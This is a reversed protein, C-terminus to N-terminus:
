KTEGLPKDRLAAMREAQSPRLYLPRAEDGTVPLYSAAVGVDLADPYACEGCLSQVDGFFSTGAPLSQVIEELSATDPMHVCVGDRYVAYYANDNGADVLTCLTGSFAGRKTKLADLSSVSIVPKKLAFAFANATTVGIRVGTFSGPGVDVAFCDIDSLKKGNRQLLTDITGILTEAHKKSTDATEADMKVGDCVIAASAAKASTEIALIMGNRKM